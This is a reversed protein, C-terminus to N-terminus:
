SSVWWGGISKQIYNWDRREWEERTEEQTVILWKHNRFKRSKFNGKVHRNRQRPNKEGVPNKADVFTQKILVYPTSSSTETRSSPHHESLVSTPNGWYQGWPSTCQGKVYCVHKQTREVKSTRVVRRATIEELAAKVYGETIARASQINISDTIHVSVRKIGTAQNQRKLCNKFDGSGTVGVNAHRSHHRKKTTAARTQLYWRCVKKKNFIPHRIAKVLVFKCQCDM